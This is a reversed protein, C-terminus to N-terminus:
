ALAARGGTFFVSFPAPFQFIHKCYETVYQKSCSRNQRGALNLPGTLKTDVSYLARKRRHLAKPARFQDSGKM